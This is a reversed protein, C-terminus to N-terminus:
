RCTTFSLPLVTFSLSLDAFPLPLVTFSLSLVAFPLPLVTFSLSLVAFPLPLVVTTAAQVCCGPVPHSPASRDSHPSCQGLVENLPPYTCWGFFISLCRFATSLHYFPLPHHKSHRFMGSRVPGTAISTIVGCIRSQTVLGYAYSPSDALHVM